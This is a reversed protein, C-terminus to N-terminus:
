SRVLKMKKELPEFLLLTKEEGEYFRYLIGDKTKDLIELTIPIVKQASTLLILDDGGLIVFEFPIKGDSPNPIYNLLSEFVSEQLGNEIAKSLEQYEMEKTQNFLREGMRNGDVYILGLYNKTKSLEALESLDETFEAKEWEQYTSHEKM